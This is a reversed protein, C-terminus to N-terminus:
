WRSIVERLILTTLVAAIAGYIGSWVKLRSLENSTELRYSVSREDLKEQNASLRKIESLVHKRYEVWGDKENEDSVM